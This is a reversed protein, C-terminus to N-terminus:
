QLNVRLMLTLCSTVPRVDNYPSLLVSINVFSFLTMTVLLLENNEVTKENKHLDELAKAIRKRAGGILANGESGVCTSPLTNLLGLVTQCM